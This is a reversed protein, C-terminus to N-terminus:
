TGGAPSCGHPPMALAWGAAGQFREQARGSGFGIVPQKAKVWTGGQGGDWPAGREPGSGGSDRRGHWPPIRRWAQQTKDKDGRAPPTGAQQPRMRLPLALQAGVMRAQSGQRPRPGRGGQRAMPAPCQPPWLGSKIWSGGAIAAAPVPSLPPPPLPARPQPPRQSVGRAAPWGPALVPGGGPSSGLLTLAGPLCSASPQCSPAASGKPLESGSKSKKKRGREQQELKLLQVTGQKPDWRPKQKFAAQDEGCWWRGGGRQKLGRRPLAPPLPPLPDGGFVPM